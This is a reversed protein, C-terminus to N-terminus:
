LREAASPAAADSQKTAPAAVSDEWPGLVLLWATLTTFLVLFAENLFPLQTPNIQFLEYLILSGSQICWVALAAASPFIVLEIYLAYVHRDFLLGLAAVQLFVFAALPFALHTPLERDKSSIPFLGFLSMSFVAVSFITLNLPMRRRYPTVPAHVDPIDAPDGLRPKGVSWGPGKLLVSIKNCFGQVHFLQSLIHAIHHTQVKWPNFSNINHTLGYVVEEGEEAFTGFMRDWIILVGALFYVAVTFGCCSGYNKDICYRNSGHHVRHHSATNLVWELPGLKPM